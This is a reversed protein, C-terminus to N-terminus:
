GLKGIELRHQIRDKLTVVLRIEPMDFGATTISPPVALFTEVTLRNVQEIINRIAGNKAQEQVPQTLRWNTGQKQCTLDVDGHRLVIKAADDAEFDLIQKSRLGAVGIGVLDLLGKKVLFVPSANGAKVYINEGKMKGVLLVAPETNPTMFSAEISPSDLSYPELSEPQDDVFAVARLADVGFLLNM